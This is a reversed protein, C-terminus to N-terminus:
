VESLRQLRLEEDVILKHDPYFNVLMKFEVGFAYKLFEKLEANLRTDSNFSNM